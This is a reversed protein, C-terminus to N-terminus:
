RRRHARKSTKLTSWRTRRDTDDQVNRVIEWGYSTLAYFPFYRFVENSNEMRGNSRHGPVIIGERVLRWMAAYLDIGAQERAKVDRGTTLGAFDASVNFQVTASERLGRLIAARMEDVM